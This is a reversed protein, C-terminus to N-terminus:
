TSAPWRIDRLKVLTRALPVIEILGAGCRPCNYTTERRGRLLCEALSTAWQCRPCRISLDADSVETHRLMTNFLDSVTILALSRRGAPLAQRLEASTHRYDEAEKRGQADIAALAALATREWRMREDDEVPLFEFRNSGLAYCADEVSKVLVPEVKRSYYQLAAVVRNLSYSPEHPAVIVRAQGPLMPAGQARRVIVDMPIDVATVATYDMLGRALGNRAVFAAVQRDRLVIDEERYVGSLRTLLVNHIRDHLLQFLSVEGM